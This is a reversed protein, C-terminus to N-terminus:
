IIQPEFDLDQRFLWNLKSAKKESILTALNKKDLNNVSYQLISIFYEENPKINVLDIKYKLCYERVGLFREYNKAFVADLKINLENLDKIKKMCYVDSLFNSTEDFGIIYIKTKNEMKIIWASWNASPM